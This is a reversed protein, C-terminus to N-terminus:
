PQRKCLLVACHCVKMNDRGCTAAAHGAEGAQGLEHAFPVVLRHRDLEIAARDHFQGAVSRAGIKDARQLRRRAADGIGRAAQDLGALGLSRAVTEDHHDGREIEISAPGLPSTM